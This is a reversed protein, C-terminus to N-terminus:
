STPVYTARFKIGAGLLQQDLLARHRHRGEQQRVDREGSEPLRATPGPVIAVM